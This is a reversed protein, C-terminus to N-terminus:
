SDSQRAIRASFARTLGSSPRFRRSSHIASEASRKKPTGRIRPRQGLSPISHQAKPALACALWITLDSERRNTHNAPLFFRRIIRTMQSIRPKVRRECIKAKTFRPSKRKQSFRPNRPYFPNLEDCPCLHASRSSLILSIFCFTNFSARSGTREASGM